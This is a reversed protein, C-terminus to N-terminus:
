SPNHCKEQTSNRRITTTQTRAKARTEESRQKTTIKRTARDYRRLNNRTRMAQTCNTRRSLLTRRNKRHEVQITVKQTRLSKPRALRGPGPLTGNGKKHQYRPIQQCMTRQKHAQRKSRIGGRETVTGMQQTTHRHGGVPSHRARMRLHLLSKYTGVRRHPNQKHGSPRQVKSANIRRGTPTTNTRSRRQPNQSEGAGM